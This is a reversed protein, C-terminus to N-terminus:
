LAGESRCHQLHSALNQELAAHIHNLPEVSLVRGQEFRLTCEPQMSASDAM